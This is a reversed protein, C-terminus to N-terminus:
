EGDDSNLYDLGAYITAIENARAIEARVAHPTVKIHEKSEGKSFQDVARLVAGALELESRHARGGRLGVMPDLWRALNQTPASGVGERRMVHAFEEAFPTAVDAGYLIAAAVMGLRTGARTGRVRATEMIAVKEWYPTLARAVEFLDEDLARKTSGSLVSIWVRAVELVKRDPAGEVMHAVQALTRLKGRNIVAVTSEDLGRTVTFQQPKDAMVVAHLRHHGDLIMGLASIGISENTVKWLGRTMAAALRLVTARNIKRNKPNAHSALLNKAQIPTITEVRSTIM